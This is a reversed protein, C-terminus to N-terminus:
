RGGTEVKCSLFPALVRDITRSSLHFAMNVNESLPRASRCSAVPFATGYQAQESPIPLVFQFLLLDDLDVRPGAITDRHRSRLRCRDVYAEFNPMLDFIHCLRESLHLLFARVSFLAALFLSRLFHHFSINGRERLRSLLYRNRLSVTPHFQCALSYPPSPFLPPDPAQVEKILPWKFRPNGSRHLGHNLALPHARLGRILDVGVRTSSDSPRM